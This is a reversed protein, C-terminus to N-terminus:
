RLEEAIARFQEESALFAEVVLPDFHSGSGEVIIHRAEEHSMAGKYVRASTLADYVDAVAVIRASLGIDDGRLGFPYGSGDWKEHHGLAIETATRLFDDSEWQRKVALLTDGGITTHSQMIRREEDTLQGDKKLVADPIGVKGIDHLAATIAVTRLWEHDVEPSKEILQAAMAEVYRCIRELHKGTEDDRSEALKALAFILADRSQSREFAIQATRDKLEAAMDNVDRGLDALEDRTEITVRHDLDGSAIRRVAGALTGIPGTLKHAALLICGIILALTVGLAVSAEAFRMRVDAMALREPQSAVFIWGTSDIPAFAVWRAQDWKEWGAPPTGPWPPVTVVGAEGSVLRQCAAILEPRGTDAAAEGITRGALIERGSRSYIYQGDRNLIVFDLDPRRGLRRGMEAVTVDVTTVGRFGDDGDFPASFTVMLTNGAGDDFYPETWMAAGSARPGHWWQRGTDAYWDQVDRTLSMTQLGDPGRFVYSCRLEAGPAEPEFAMAAGFIAHNQLVNASLQAAIQADTLEPVTEMLNATALAIAAVERFGSDLGAASTVARETMLQEVEHRNIEGLRLLMAGLIGLYIALTPLAIMAIMKGRIGLRRM